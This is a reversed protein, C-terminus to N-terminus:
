TNLRNKDCTKALGFTRLYMANHLCTLMHLCIFLLFNVSVFSFTCNM